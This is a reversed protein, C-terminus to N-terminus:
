RPVNSRKLSPKEPPRQDGYWYRQAFETSAEPRWLMLPLLHLLDTFFHWDGHEDFKRMSVTAKVRRLRALREGRSRGLRRLDVLLQVDECFERREDYGGVREFDDRRCFVVGTDMRLTWVFPMFLAYTAAIGPSWRELKVGTAGAVIRGGDLAEDVANFTEPHIQMDGDVFCLTDGSALRAGGNRVSAIRREEIRAVLCGARHAIAATDDTSANDAVIVEVAAAGREYRARAAAVTGLLRPLLQAENRAPIVVSTHPLVVSSSDEVVDM